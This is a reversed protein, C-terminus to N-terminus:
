RRGPLWAVFGAEGLRKMVDELHARDRTEIVVELLTGKAPLDSFTRQHSVEIINAGAEALLASVAALQGPRDVIDIAIQTLRGERALERTLVSAILRTDINGGTLVLGVHRGAFREPAALIAALGVAGAGEVVTKEIAILMSVAREIQDETVLVIDDVLDRIIETTIRGPVKVAIGEALTDGRMPLQEGRIVNYMSPYLQAQVGVIRLEPKLSKAAIAMGSILGGGGIPIVMTDLDPAAKLMELAITGQGAIILPDDYPHIMILNNAEGHKRAFEGAEELTKGSIITNAGHRRTNEIKVMPTGIPMVISAPIGLRSAHYAVGQAHNGASMAIVGRRREDPSLARLRNLAGREKFTSTFQLNEFKLWVNCGCIESLTRSQDCETVIVSGAISAAAATIDDSTVPLRGPESAHRDPPANEPAKPM